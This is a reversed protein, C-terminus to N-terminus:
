WSGTVLEFHLEFNLTFDRSPRPRTPGSPSRFSRDVIEVWDCQAAQANQLISRSQIAIHTRLAILLQVGQLIKIQVKFKSSQVESKM